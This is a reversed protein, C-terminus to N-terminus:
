SDSESPDKTTITATGQFNCADVANPNKQFYSNMAYAAHSARTNPLFCAQGPQIPLCDAAGLGCAYDLAAQLNEETADQICFCLFNCLLTSDRHYSALFLKFTSVVVPGFKWVQKAVCWTRTASATPPSTVQTISSGSLDVAYVPAMDNSFLGMNRTSLPGSTKM